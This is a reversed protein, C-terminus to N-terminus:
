RHHAMLRAPTSQPWAAPRDSKRKLKAKRALFQTGIIRIPRRCRSRARAAAYSKPAAAPESSETKNADPKGAELKAAEATKDKAPAADKKPAVVDAKPAPKTKKDDSAM